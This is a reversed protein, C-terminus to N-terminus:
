KPDAGPYGYYLLGDRCPHISRNNSGPGDNWDAKHLTRAVIPHSMDGVWGPDLISLTLETVVMDKSGGFRMVDNFVGICAGWHIRLGDVPVKPTAEPFDVGGMRDFTNVAVADTVYAFPREGAAPAHTTDPVALSAWWRQGTGVGLLHGIEHMATSWVIDNWPEASNGHINEHSARSLYFVGVPTTGNAALDHQYYAWGVGLPQKSNEGVWLHLGPPLVDGAEFRISPAGRLAKPSSFAYSTTDTQWLIEAWTAAANEVGAKMDAPFGDLYNVRIPYRPPLNFEVMIEASGWVDGAAATITATGRGMATALGAGDVAVVRADSSSWTVSVDAMARGIQDVVEASLQVTQGLAALMVTDPTVTIATPVAAAVMLEASGSVGAATATVMAHGPAVGTVLGSDDIVAVTTDYSAWAFAEDNVAHGNADAAVATLRLTDVEVLTDAAPTVKVSAVVQAVTVTATASVAGATASVTATGNSRATLLGTATVASVDPANSSWAVPTGAAVLGNADVAEATLRLTDGLATLTLSDRGMVVAAVAQAVTVTASAVVGGAAATITATGNAVATVVGAGDVTAVAPAGSAWSVAASPMPQGNQDRVAAMLRVTAGLATLDATAPTM